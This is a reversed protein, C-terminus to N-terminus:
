KRKDALLETVARTIRGVAERVHEQDSQRVHRLIRGEFKDPHFRLMTERLKDRREKQVIEAASPADDPALSTPLLFASIADVTLDEVTVEVEVARAKGKKDRESPGVDSVFVPWPIDQFRLELAPGDKSDSLPVNLLDKWKSEYAARIESERLHERETRKRRWREEEEKEIRRTEARAAKARAERAAHEAKKREQEAFEAAHQKRSVRHIYTYKVTYFLSVEVHQSKGM